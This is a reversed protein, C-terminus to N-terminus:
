IAFHMKEVTPSGMHVPDRDEVFDGAAGGSCTEGSLMTSRMADARSHKGAAASVTRRPKLRLFVAPLPLYKWRCSSRM